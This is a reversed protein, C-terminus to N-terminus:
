EVNHVTLDLFALLFGIIFPKEVMRSDNSNCTIFNNNNDMTTPNM